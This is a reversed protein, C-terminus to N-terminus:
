ARDHGIMQKVAAVWAAARPGSLRGLFEAELKSRVECADQLFARGRETPVALVARGDRPDAELTVLRRGALDRAVKGAYQKSWTLAAAVDSLRTGTEELDSLFQVHTLTAGKWGRSAYGRNAADQFRRYLTGVARAASSLMEERLDNWARLTPRSM